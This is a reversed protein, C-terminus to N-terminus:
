LKEDMPSNNRLILLCNCLHYTLEIKFVPKWKSVLGLYQDCTETGEAKENCM